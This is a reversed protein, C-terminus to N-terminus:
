VFSVHQAFDADENRAQMLVNDHFATDQPPSEIGSGSGWFFAAAAGGLQAISRRQLQLRANCFSAGRSGTTKTAIQTKVMQLVRTVKVRNETGNIGLM